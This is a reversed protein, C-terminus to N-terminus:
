LPLAMLVADEAPTHGRAPYYARRRGTEAFGGGAYVSRARANSARVELLLRGAGASSALSGAAQLLLRALGARQWDPDVALDLVEWDDPGPQLLIAAVVQQPASARQGPTAIQGARVAPDAVTGHAGMASCREATCLWGCASAALSAAFRPADWSGGVRRALSALATADTVRLPRLTAAPGHEGEPPVLNTPTVPNM